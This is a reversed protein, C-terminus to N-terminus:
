DDLYAFFDPTELNADLYAYVQMAKEKPLSEQLTDELAGFQANLYSRTQAKLKPLSDDSKRNATILSQWSRANQKLDAVAEGVIKQEAVTLSAQMYIKELPEYSAGTKDAKYAFAGSAATAIAVSVGLAVINKKMTM